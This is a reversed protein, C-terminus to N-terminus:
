VIDSKSFAGIGGMRKREDFRNSGLFKRRSEGFTERGSARVM